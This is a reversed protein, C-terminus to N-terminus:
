TFTQSSPSSLDKIQGSKQWQLKETSEMLETGLVFKLPNLEKNSFSSRLFGSASPSCQDLKPQPM